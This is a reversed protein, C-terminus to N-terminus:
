GRRRGEGGVALLAAQQGELLVDTRADRQWEARDEVPSDHLFLCDAQTFSLCLLTLFHLSNLGRPLTPRALVNLDTPPPPTRPRLVNAALSGWSPMVSPCPFPSAARTQLSADCLLFVDASTYGSSRPSAPPQPPLSASSAIRPDILRSLRSILRLHSRERGGLELM